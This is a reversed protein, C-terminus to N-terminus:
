TTPASSGAALLEALTPILENQMARKTVYASAGAREADTRYSNDERITLMVVKATPQTAKLKRTAEIGNMGPLAIDMVVLDLSEVSALALADEGCRAGLVRCVPFKVQLWESLSERVADHDEVVLITPM